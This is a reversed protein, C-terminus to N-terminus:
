EKRRSTAMKNGNNEGIKTALCVLYKSKLGMVLNTCAIFEIGIPAPLFHLVSFPHSCMSLFTFCVNTILCFQM